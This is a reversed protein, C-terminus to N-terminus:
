LLVTNTIVAYYQLQVSVKEWETETWSEHAKAWLYRRRKMSDTLLPKRMPRCARRGCRQLHERIRRVSLHNAPFGIEEKLEAANMTPDCKSLQLLRHSLRSGIVKKRGCKGKKSSDITGTEREKKLLRSVASQSCGVNGAIESQNQSTHRSLTIIQLRQAATLDMIATFIVVTHM